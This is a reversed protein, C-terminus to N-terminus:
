SCVYNWSYEYESRHYLPTAAESQGVDEPQSDVYTLLNAFADEMQRRLTMTPEPPGLHGDRGLSKLKLHETERGRLIHKAGSTYTAQIPEGIQPIM